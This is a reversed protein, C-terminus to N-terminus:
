SFRTMTLGEQQEGLSGQKPGEIEVGEAPNIPQYQFSETPIDDYLTIKKRADAPDPIQRFKREVNHLMHEVFYWPLKVKYGRKLWKVENNVTMVLPDPAGEKKALTFWCMLIDGNTDLKKRKSDLVEEPSETPAVVGGIKSALAEIAKQVAANSVQGSAM